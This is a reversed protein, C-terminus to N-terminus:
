TVKWVTLEGPQPLSYYVSRICNSSPNSGIPYEVPYTDPCEQTPSPLPPNTMTQRLTQNQL